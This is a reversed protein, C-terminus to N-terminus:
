LNKKQNKRKQALIAISILQNTRIWHECSMLRVDNRDDYKDFNMEFM